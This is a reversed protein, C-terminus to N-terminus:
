GYVYIITVNTANFDQNELHSLMDQSIRVTQNLEPTFDHNMLDPSCIELAIGRTACDIANNMDDAFSIAKAQSSEAVTLLQPVFGLIMIAVVPYILIEKM